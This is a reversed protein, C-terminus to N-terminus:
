FPKKTGTKQYNYVNSIGSANDIGNLRNKETGTKQYNTARFCLRTM